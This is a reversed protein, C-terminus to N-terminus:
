AEARGAAGVRLRALCWCCFTFRCNGSAAPPIVPACIKGLEVHSVLVTKAPRTFIVALVGRKTAVPDCYDPSIGPIQLNTNLRIRGAPISVARYSHLFYGHLSTSLGTPTGVSRNAAHPVQESKAVPPLTALPGSAFFAASVEPKGL